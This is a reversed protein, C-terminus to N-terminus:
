DKTKEVVENYSEFDISREGDLCSSTLFNDCMIESTDYHIVIGSAELLEKGCHKCYIKM